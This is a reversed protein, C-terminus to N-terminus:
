RPTLVVKTATDPEHVLRRFGEAGDDLALATIWDVPPPATALLALAAEFDERTYAYHGRLSVGRRVLDAAPVTGEQQGLGILAVRGGTRVGAIGARWTAEIGVADIALDAEAPPVDGVDALVASAGLVKALRRREGVPEVCVTRLGRAACAYVALLGIPGGGLVLVADAPRAGDIRLASVSAALPEVLVAVRSEVNSPVAVLSDEPVVVREAFVGPRDLGLLGRNECLNEEGRTCAPCRGCVSLPFVTYRGPRGAVRGVAEHGLVLPPRRPGPHGRYAHLDSGCIGALDVELIVSGPRPEPEALDGVELADGGHWVLARM